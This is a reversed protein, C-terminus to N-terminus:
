RDQLLHFVISRQYIQLMKNSSPQQLKLKSQLIDRVTIIEPHQVGIAKDKTIFVTETGNGCFVFRINM